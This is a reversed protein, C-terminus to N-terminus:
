AIARARKRTVLDESLDRGTEIDEARTDAALM